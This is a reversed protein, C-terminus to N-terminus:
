VSAGIEKDKHPGGPLLRGPPIRLCQIRAESGQSVNMIAANLIFSVSTPSVIKSNISLKQLTSSTGQVAIKWM